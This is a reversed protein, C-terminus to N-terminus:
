QGLQGKKPRPPPLLNNPIKPSYSELPRPIDLEAFMINGDSVKQGNPPIRRALKPICEKDAVSLKDGQRMDVFLYKGSIGDTTRFAEVTRIECRTLIGAAM